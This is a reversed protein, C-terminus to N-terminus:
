FLWVQIFVYECPGAESPLSCFATPCDSPAVCRSGIGLPILGEECFCGPVCEGISCVPQLRPPFHYNLCTIGCFYVCDKYVQTPPCQPPPCEDPSVCETEEPDSSLPVLGDPCACGEACVSDCVPRLRPPLHVNECTIGCSTACDSYVQDGPCRPDAVGHILLHECVAVM